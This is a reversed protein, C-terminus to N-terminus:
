DEKKKAIKSIHTIDKLLAELTASEKKQENIKDTFVEIYTNLSKLVKEKHQIEEQLKAQLLQLFLETQENM